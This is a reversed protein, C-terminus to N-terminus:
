AGARLRENLAKQVAPLAAHVARTDKREQAARLAEVAKAHAKAKRSKLFPIM